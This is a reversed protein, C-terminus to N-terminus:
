SERAGEVARGLDLVSGRRDGAVVVSLIPTNYLKAVIIGGM